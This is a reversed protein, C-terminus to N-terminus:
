YRSFYDKTIEKVKPSLLVVAILNPIAMLGLALDGFSWVIELTFIAGVFHMILFVIRYPLIAKDGFLYQISRDGYYSWSIATSIGFLFVSVTVLYRGYNGLLSSLSLEFAKATLPSGNLAVGSADIHTWAGSIIIVLGTMTCIVLTDIFPGIMAVTGERAAEKTKAAAHAIPASGQGAENSFIGRKVGWILTYLFTTGAFGGIAAPPNFASTIILKFMEPVKDIHLVIATVSALVYLIAMFPALKSAVQGIRKIGGLIVSGVILVLIIGTVYQPIGFDAKFQDAVTFAQVANGSGFSSIVTCAAFLIALPKFNKGLGREIYYMPGGSVSGDPNVKRYYLSLTCEAYKLAMGFIATIWMWFLAGPGGYHIATAVGAINGIGVTASLAASLAQFHSIDGEEEQNDYKGSIVEWSHWFKRIQIFGLYLTIYVGAGLLLVVMIPAKEPFNWILSSLFEVIERIKDVM